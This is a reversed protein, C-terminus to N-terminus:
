SFLFLHNKPNIGINLPFNVSKTGSQYLRTPAIKHREINM